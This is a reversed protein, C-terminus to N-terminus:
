RFGAKRLGDLLREAASPVFLLRAWKRESAALDPDLQHLLPLVVAAENTRGLQGMSAVLWRTIVLYKPDAALAEQAVALAARYDGSLYHAGALAPLWLFRRPDHPSLRLAVNVHPFAKEPCDLYNYGFAMMAHGAAHSPNLHVCERLRALSDLARGLHNLTTGLAYQTMPDTPDLQVARQGLALAEAQAPQKDTWDCWAAHTLALTLSAAARPYDPEIELTRRFIERAIENDARTYRYHHWLGRQYLEYTSAQPPPVRRAREGEHRVLEPELRAVIGRALGEQLQLADQAVGEFREAVLTEGTDADVLDASVRVREGSRRVTGEHVYRAGLTRGVERADAGKNRLSFSSSRSLVPFSRWRAIATILDEALGDAFPEDTQDAVRFPMVAIAPREGFGPVPAAAVRPAARESLGARFARIPHPLNKLHKIGLDLFWLESGEGVRAAAESVVVEGAGAVGELRAALNVGDGFLDDGDAIVDGLAIGARLRLRSSEPAAEARLEAGEQVKLACRMAATASSFEALLGDGTRKFVRGGSAQIGPELVEDLLSRLRAHTGEQDAAMLRSYGAVDMALIAALRREASPM